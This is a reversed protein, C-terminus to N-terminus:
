RAGALRRAERSWETADAVGAAAAEEALRLAVGAAGRGGAADGNAALAEALALQNPAYGPDRGVARRAASLGEEPDGPGLPWGPARLLLLALVRDPGGHDLAPDTTAARRLLTVMQALGKRLTAPRERVQMGLAIGLAYDCRPTEPAIQECREGAAVAEGALAERRAASPEHEVERALAHVSAALAADDVAVPATGIPPLVPACAGAAVGAAAVLLAARHRM